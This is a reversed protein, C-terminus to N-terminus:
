YSVPKCLKNKVQGPKTENYEIWGWNSLTNYTSAWQFDMIEHDYSINLQYAIVNHYSSIYNTMVPVTFTAKAAGTAQGIYIDNVAPPDITDPPAITDMNLDYPFIVGKSGYYAIAWYAQLSDMGGYYSIERIDSSNDIDQDSVSVAISITDFPTPSYNSMSISPVEILSFYRNEKEQLRVFVLYESNFNLANGLTNSDSLLFEMNSAFAEGEKGISVSMNRGGAEAWISKYSMRVYEEGSIIRDGFKYEGNEEPYGLPYIPRAPNYAESYPAFMISIREQETIQDDYVEFLFYLSSNNALVAFKGSFENTDSYHNDYESTDIYKFDIPYKFYQDIAEWLSEISNNYTHLDFDSYLVKIEERQYPNTEWDEPLYQWWSPLIQANLAFSILLALMLVISKKLTLQFSTCFLNLSM